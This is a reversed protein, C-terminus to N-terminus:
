VYQPTQDNHISTFLAIDPVLTFVMKQTYNFEVDHGFIRESQSVSYFLFM